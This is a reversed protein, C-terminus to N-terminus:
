TLFNVIGLLILCVFLVVLVNRFGLSHSKYHEICQAYDGRGPFAEHLTRPYKRFTDIM